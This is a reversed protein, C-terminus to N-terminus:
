QTPVIGAINLTAGSAAPSSNNYTFCDMSTSSGQTECILADGGVGDRRGAIPVTPQNFTWPTTFNVSGSCSGVTTIPISVNVWATKGDINNYQAKVTGLTTITGSACSVTPSWTQYALVNGGINIKNNGIDSYGSKFSIQSSNMGAPIALDYSRSGGSIGTTINFSSVNLVASSNGIAIYALSGGIACNTVQLNAIQVHAAVTAGVSLCNVLYSGNLYVNGLQALPADILMAQINNSGYGQGATYITDATFGTGNSTVYVGYAAASVGNPSDSWFNEVTLNPGDVFLNVTHGYSLSMGTLHAGDELAGSFSIGKGSRPLGALPTVSGANVVAVTAWPWVHINDFNSNDDVVGILMGSNCDLNVNKFKFRSGTTGASTFCTDFGMILVNELSFDNYHSTSAPLAVATGTWSGSSTQPFTMGNPVIMCGRITASNNGNITASSGLKIQSMSNFISGSTNISPWGYNDAQCTLSTGNQL